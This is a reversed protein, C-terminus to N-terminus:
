VVNNADKKNKRTIDMLKKIFLIGTFNLVLKGIRAEEFGEKMTCIYVRAAWNFFEDPKVSDMADVSLKPQVKISEAYLEYLKRKVSIEVTYVPLSLYWDVLYDLYTSLTPLWEDHCSIFFEKLQEDSLHLFWKRNEIADKTLPRKSQEGYVYKAFNYTPTRKM